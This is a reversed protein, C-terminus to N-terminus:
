WMDKRPPPIIRTKLATLGKKLCASPGGNSWVQFFRFSWLRQVDEVYQSLERLEAKLEQNQHLLQSVTRSQAPDEITRGLLHFFERIVAPNEQAAAFFRTLPEPPNSGVSLVGLGHGHLFEFNSYKPKLEEWMRWLGFDRERVNIDHLLVVGCRSMKGLWQYFDETVAEYTHFGDIHLLDISGDSFHERADKFTSQILRSFSDYLPDHHEKLEQLLMPGYYGAHPDGKWTDVAYCRTEISLTQAAQCFACYSVGTHTGLEVFTKPRLVDMLLMAFPIHEIWASDAIRRPKAFCIPYEIPNFSFV